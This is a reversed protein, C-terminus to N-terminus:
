RSKLLLSRTQVPHTANHIVGAASDAIAYMGVLRELRHHGRKHLWYSIGLTAATGGAFFAVQGPTGLKMFPQAIPNREVGGHALANHTLGFDAAEMGAHVAFLLKTERDWFKHSAALEASPANLEQATALTCVSVLVALCLSRRIM